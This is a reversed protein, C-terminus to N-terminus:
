IQKCFTRYEESTQLQLKHSTTLEFVCGRRDKIKRILHNRLFLKGKARECIFYKNKKCCKTLNLDNRFIEGCKDERVTSNMYYELSEVSFSGNFSEGNSWLYENKQFQYVLGIWAPNDTINPSLSYVFDMEKKNAVSVLDGGFGYCVSLARLWSFERSYGFSDM